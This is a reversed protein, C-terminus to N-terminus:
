VRYYRLARKEATAMADEPSAQGTAASSVMDVIIFDALAGAAAYGLPGAYGMDLSRTTADKFVRNKPDSTWVPHNEYAKLTQTFYGVSEQLWADYQPKEMLFALLTKCANPYKTYQFAEIPFPLQLETPRGIPGIPYYAHDMDDKIPNNDRKAAAYISIGNNTYYCEGALFAKNNNSDNWSATGPIWYQYLEKIYELAMKTEPSNIVVNSDKDVLKGGFSWVLWHTWANGDGTARGLAMGGPTGNAHLKKSCDLLADTTEPFKDYGVDQLAKVRYNIYNGSVCLPIAIWKGERTSYAKPMDYWGGYKDGLYKAVDSVDLLKDPILHPISMPGWIVDPGAGVNAAVAAKPQIDDLFEKDLRLPVGTAESFAAVIKDFQIDESEVFRNWRLMRLSAGKEPKFPMEAAWAKAWDVLGAYSLTAGVGLATTGKLVDRRTILKMPVGGTLGSENDYAIRRM